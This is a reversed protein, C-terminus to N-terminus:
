GGTLNTPEAPLGAGGRGAGGGGVLLELVEDCGNKQLSLM